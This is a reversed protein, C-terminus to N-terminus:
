SVELHRHPQPWAFYRSAVSRTITLAALAAIGGAILDLIYHHDLYVASFAILAAFGWVLVCAIRSWKQVILATLVQLGFHMSPVAGFVNLSKSYITEAIPIGVINDLRAVGAASPLATLDAPGLGHMYVYWPPAVPLLIFTAFTILHMALLAWVFIQGRPRDKRYLIVGVVVSPVLYFVYALGCIFDLVLWSRTRFLENLLVVGSDTHLGFLFLEARYIDAVHIELRFPLLLTHMDYLAFLAWIPFFFLMAERTRRGAFLGLVIGDVILHIAQLSGAAAVVLLHALLIAPWLKKWEVM